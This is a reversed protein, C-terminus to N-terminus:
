FSKETSVHSEDMHFRMELTTFLKDIDAQTLVHGHAGTIAEILLYFPDEHHSTEYSESCIALEKLVVNIM